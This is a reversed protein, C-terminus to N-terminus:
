DHGWGGLGNGTLSPAPPPTTEDNATNYSPSANSAVETKTPATKATAPQDIPSYGFFAVLQFLAITFLDTM